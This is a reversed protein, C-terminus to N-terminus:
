REIYRFKYTKGQRLLESKRFTMSEEITMDGGPHKNLKAEFLDLISEQRNWM